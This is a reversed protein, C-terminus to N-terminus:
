AHASREAKLREMATAIDGHTDRGATAERRQSSSALADPANMPEHPIEDIDAFQSSMTCEARDEGIFTFVSSTGHPDVGRVQNKLENELWAFADRGSLARNNNVVITPVVKVKSVDFVTKEVDIVNFDDLMFNKTLEKLFLQCYRCASSSFLTNRPSREAAEPSPM